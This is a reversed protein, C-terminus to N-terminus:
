FTVLFGMNSLYIVDMLIKLFRFWEVKQVNKWSSSKTEEENNTLNNTLDINSPCDELSHYAHSLGNELIKVIRLGHPDNGIQCGIASTVVLEM